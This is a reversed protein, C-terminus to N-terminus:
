EPKLNNLWGMLEITSKAQGSNNVQVRDYPVAPYEKGTGDFIHLKEFGDITYSFSSAGMAEGNIIILGDGTGFLTLYFKEYKVELAAEVKMMFDSPSDMGTSDYTATAKKIYGKRVINEPDIYKIFGNNDRALNQLNLFDELSMSLTVNHLFPELLPNFAYFDANEVITVGTTNEDGVSTAALGNNKYVRNRFPSLKTYLNATALWKNYYNHMNRKVTFLLNSFRDPEPINEIYIFGENTRNKLTVINTVKYKFTTNIDLITTAGGTALLTLKTDEVSLVLYSGGNSTNLIQFVYGLGIGLQVWSFNGRNTLILTFNDNNFQHQLPATKTQTRDADSLNFDIIDLVFIKDDDQTATSDSLTAAKNQADSILLPDRIWGIKIEKTDQPRKADNTSELEGHVIANTNGDQVEKQSQYNKYGINFGKVNYEENVIENFGDITEEIFSGVEVDRYFEDYALIHVKDDTKIVYGSNSEPLWEEIIDKFSINVAREELRRMLQSNTIYQSYFIGGIDFQPANVELGSVSKVVQKIADIVRIMPIVTNDSTSTATITTKSESFTLIQTSGVSSVTYGLWIFDTANVFPITAILEEPLITEVENTGTIQKYYLDKWQGSSIANDINTSGWALRLRLLGQKTSAPEFPIYEWKLKHNVKVTINSLNFLARVHKFNDGTSTNLSEFWSLSDLIDYKTNNFVPNLFDAGAMPNFTFVQESNVTKWESTQVIPLAKLYVSKPNVPTIDEGFLTKNSLINVKDDFRTKLISRINEELVSFTFYTLNDTEYNMMDVDGIIQTNEDFDIEYKVIAEWGFKRKNYLIIDFCQDPLHYVTLKNEGGAYKIDRGYYKGQEITFDAADSGQPLEIEIRGHGSSIFNFYARIPM